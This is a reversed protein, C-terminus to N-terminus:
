CATLTVQIGYVQQQTYLALSRIISMFGTRFTYLEIGFYIQSNTRRTPKVALIYWSARDESHWICAMVNYAIHLQWLLCIIPATWNTFTLSLFSTNVARRQWCSIPTYFTKQRVKSNKAHRTASPLGCTCRKATPCPAACPVCWFEWVRSRSSTYTTTTQTACRGAQRTVSQKRAPRRICWGATDTQGSRGGTTSASRYLPNRTYEM